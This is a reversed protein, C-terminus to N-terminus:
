YPILHSQALAHVSIITEEKNNPQTYSFLLSLLSLSLNLSLSLTPSHSLFALQSKSRKARKERVDRQPPQNIMREIAFYGLYFWDAACRECTKMKAQKATKEERTTGTKEKGGTKRWSAAYNSACCHQAGAWGSWGAQDDDARRAAKQGAAWRRFSCHGEACTLILYDQIEDAFLFFTNCCHWSEQEKALEESGERWLHFNKLLFKKENM